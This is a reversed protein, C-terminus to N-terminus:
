VEQWNGWVAGLDDGHLSSSYERGGQGGGDDAREADDADGVRQGRGREVRVDGGAAVEVERRPRKLERGAGGVVGRLDRRGLEGARIASVYGGPGSGIIAVDYKAM